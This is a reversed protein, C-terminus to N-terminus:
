LELTASVLTRVAEVVLRANASDRSMVSHFIEERLIDDGSDSWKDIADRGSDAADERVRKVIEDALNTINWGTSEEVALAIPKAKELNM